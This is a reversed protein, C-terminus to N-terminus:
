ARIVRLVPPEEQEGGTIDLQGPVQPAMEMACLDGNEDPSLFLTTSIASTPQLKPKVVYNTSIVQRNADAFFDITITLTRKKKPDTNPDYINDLIKSMEYDARELVAGNAIELISKPNAKAM